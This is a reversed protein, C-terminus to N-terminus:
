EMIWFDIVSPAKSALLNSFILEQSIDQACEIQVSQTSDHCGMMKDNTCFCKRDAALKQALIVM